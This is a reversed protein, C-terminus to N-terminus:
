DCPEKVSGRKEQQCGSQLETETNLSDDIECAARYIGQSYAHFLSGTKPTVPMWDPGRPQPDM